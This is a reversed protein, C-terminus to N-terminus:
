KSGDGCRGFRSQLDVFGDEFIAQGNEDAFIVTRWNDTSLGPATGTANGLSFVHTGADGVDEFVHKEFASGGAGNAVNWVGDLAGAAVHVGVSGKLLGDIM